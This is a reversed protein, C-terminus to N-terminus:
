PVVDTPLIFRHLDEPVVAEGQAGVQEAQRRDRHGGTDDAVQRGAHLQNTPSERVIETEGRRLLDLAAERAPYRDIRAPMWQLAASALGEPNSEPDFSPAAGALRGQKPRGRAQPTPTSAASVATTATCACVLAGPPRRTER